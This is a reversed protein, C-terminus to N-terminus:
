SSPRGWTRSPWGAAPASARPSTSSGDGAEEARGSILLERGLDANIGFDDRHSAQARRLCLLKKGMDRKGLFALAAALRTVSAAPLHAVDATDALQELVELRHVRDGRIRGLTERLRGRWPDPNATRAIAVLRAEGAPDRLSPGRRPVVLQRPRQGPGRGGPQGPAGPRGGRSWATPTVGYGHFAAAYESDAKADDNHVGLDNQIAALREVMRRDKEVDAAADREGVLEAM